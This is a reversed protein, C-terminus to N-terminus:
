LELRAALWGNIDRRAQRSVEAGPAFGEFDFVQCQGFGATTLAATLTTTLGLPFLSEHM